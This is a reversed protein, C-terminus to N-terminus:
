SHRGFQERWRAAADAPDLPAAEEAPPESRQGGGESRRPKFPSKAAEEVALNLDEEFRDPQEILNSFKLAGENREGKGIKRRLYGIVRALETETWAFDSWKLWEYWSRERVINLAIKYGTRAEYAAHLAKVLQPLNPPMPM